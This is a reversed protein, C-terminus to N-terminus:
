HYCHQHLWIPQTTTPGQNFITAHYACCWATGREVKKWMWLDLWHSMKRWFRLPIGGMRSWPLSLLLVTDCKWCADYVAKSGEQLEHIMSHVTNLPSRLGQGRVFIDTTGMIVGYFDLVQHLASMVMAGLDSSTEQLIWMTQMADLIQPRNVDERYCFGHHEICFSTFRDWWPWGMCFFSLHRSKFSCWPSWTIPQYSLQLAHLLVMLSWCCWLFATTPLHLHSPNPDPCSLEPTTNAKAGINFRPLIIM